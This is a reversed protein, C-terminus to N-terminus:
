SLDAPPREMPNDLRFRAMEPSMRMEDLVPATYPERRAEPRVRRVPWLACDYATCLEVQVAESGAANPDYICQRCMAEVAAKLNRRGM